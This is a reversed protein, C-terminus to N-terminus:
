YEIKKLKHAPVKRVAPYALNQFFYSALAVTGEKIVPACLHDFKKLWLAVSRIQVWTVFAALMVQLNDLYAVQHSQVLLLEVLFEV